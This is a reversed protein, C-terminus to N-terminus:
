LIINRDALRKEYEGSLYGRWNEAACIVSNQVWFPVGLRDLSPFICQTITKRSIQTKEEAEEKTYREQTYAIDAIRFALAALENRQENNAKFYLKKMNERKRQQGILIFINRKRQLSQEM